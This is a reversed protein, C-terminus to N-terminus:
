NSKCVEGILYTMEKEMFLLSYPSWFTATSSAGETHFCQLPSFNVGGFINNSGSKNIHYDMVLHTVRCCFYNRELIM